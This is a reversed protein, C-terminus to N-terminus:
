TGSPYSGFRVSLLYIMVLHDPCPVSPGVRVNGFSGNSHGLSKGYESWPIVKKQKYLQGTRTEIWRAWVSSLVDITGSLRIIKPGSATCPSSGGATIQITQWRRNKNYPEKVAYEIVAHAVSTGNHNRCPVWPRQWGSIAGSGSANERLHKCRRSDRHLGYQWHGKLEDALRRTTRILQQSFPSGSRLGHAAGSDGHVLLPPADMYAGCRNTVREAARRLSLERLAMLNGPKFFKGHGHDSAQPIYIKGEHLRPASRGPPYGGTPDRRCSRYPQGPVTERVKV